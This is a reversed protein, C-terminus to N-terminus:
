KEIVLILDGSHERDFPTRQYDGYTHVAAAGAARAAEALEDVDLGLFTVSEHRATLADGAVTLDVFEVFGRTGVRHVGKLLTHEVGDLTVRRFKQWVLPGESLRWLNLVQVIGVGGPRLAATMERIARLATPVDPVLALSNGVCAVADFPGGVPEAFSRVVWHLTDSEGFQRRCREIMAPSIDAGEVRLGWSHFRAAHQGTGCAADLVRRVGHQEFLAQYLPTENALRKPWDILADYLDAQAQFLAGSPATPPETM